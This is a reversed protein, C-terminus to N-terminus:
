KRYDTVYIRLVVNYNGADQYFVGTGFRHLTYIKGKWKLQDGDQPLWGLLDSKEVKFARLTVNLTHNEFDFDEPKPNEPVVRLLRTEKGRRYLATQHGTYRKSNEWVIREMKAFQNRRKAPDYYSHETRIRLPVKDAAIGEGPMLVISEDPHLILEQM